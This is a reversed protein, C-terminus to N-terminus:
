GPAGVSGSRGDVHLDARDRAGTRALHGEEQAMWALWERRLGEGDRELGRALRLDHPAEVWVLVTVLDAVAPAFAGVGEVVLLPCPPVGVTEAWGATLWDYRRYHGDRGAALPRLLTELQTDVRPLGEWGDYLDDLHVVRAGSEELAAALSTKGSGAPGDVCVLRGEGLTPPRSRALALVEAAAERM